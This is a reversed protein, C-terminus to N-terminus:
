TNGGDNFPPERRNPPAPLPAADPQDPPRKRRIVIDGHEDIRPMEYQPIARVLQDLSGILREVGRLAMEEARRLEETLPPRTATGPPEEPAAFAAPPLLVAAALGFAHRGILRRRRKASAM